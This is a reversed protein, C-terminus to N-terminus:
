RFKCELEADEASLRIRDGIELKLVSEAPVYQVV